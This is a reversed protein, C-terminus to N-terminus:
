AQISLEGDRSRIFIDKELYTASDLIRILGKKKKPTSDMQSQWHRLAMGLTRFQGRQKGVTIVLDASTQFGPRRYAGGGVDSSFGHHFSVRLDPLEEGHEPRKVALTGKSVDILVLQPDQDAAASDAKWFTKWTEMPAFRVLKEDVDKGARTVRLARPYYKKVNAVVPIPEPVHRHESVSFEETEPQPANFLPAVIGLPNFTYWVFEPFQNCGEGRRPAIRRLPCAQLRWLFLGINRLNYWGERPTFKRVDITHATADFAGGIEEMAAANRIHATAVRNFAVPDPDPDTDTIEPPQELRLHNVNQNWGLLEFFAVARASCGTIDRAIEELIPLRGKRRRFYITKAVDARRRRKEELPSNAVLDGLYPLVWDACTEVFFDDWLGDIDRKLLNTQASILQLFARLPEGLEADRARHVAPLLEYLDLPPGQSM